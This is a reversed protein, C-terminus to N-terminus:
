TCQIKKIQYEQSSIVQLLSHYQENCNKLQEHKEKLQAQLSAEARIRDEVENQLAQYVGIARLKEKEVIEADTSFKSAAKSASEKFLHSVSFPIYIAKLRMM